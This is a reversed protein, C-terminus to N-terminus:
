LKTSYVIKAPVSDRGSASRPADRASTYAATPRPRKKAAAQEERLCTSPTEVRTIRFAFAHFLVSPKIDQKISSNFFKGSKGIGAYGLKGFINNLM